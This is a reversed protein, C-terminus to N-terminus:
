RGQRKYVDGQFSGRFPYLLIYGPACAGAGDLEQNKPGLGAGSELAAVEDAPFVYVGNHVRHQHVAHDGVEGRFGLADRGTLGHRALHTYSVPNWAVPIEALPTECFCDKVGAVGM